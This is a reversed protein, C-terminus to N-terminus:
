SNYNAYENTLKIGNSRGSHLNGNRSFTTNLTVYTSAASTKIWTLYQLQTKLLKSTKRNRQENVNFKNYDIRVILIYLKNYTNYLYTYTDLITKKEQPICQNLIYIAVFKVM